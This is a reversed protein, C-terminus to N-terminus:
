NIANFEIYLKNLNLNKDFIAKFESKGGQIRGSHSFIINDKNSDKFPYLNMFKKLTPAKLINKFGQVLSLWDICTSLFGGATGAYYIENFEDTNNKLITENHNVALYLKINGKGVLTNTMNLPDLVYKQIVETYPMDNAMELIAGLIIYGINSYVYEGKKHEFLNESKFASAIMKMHEFKTPATKGSMNRKMGSRHQLLDLITITSSKKVGVDIYKNIGDSLKLKKNDHSAMVALMTLIKSSSGMRFQSEANIIDKDINNYTYITDEEFFFRIKKFSVTKKVINVM